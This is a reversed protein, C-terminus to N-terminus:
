DMYGYSAWEAYRKRFDQIHNWVKAFEEDEASMEAAVEEWATRFADLMEPSWKHFTVGQERLKAMPELQMTEGRAMSSKATPNFTPM